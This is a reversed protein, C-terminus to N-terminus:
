APQPLAGVGGLRSILVHGDPLGEPVAGAKAVPHVVARTALARRRLPGVGAVMTLNDYRNKRLLRLQDRHVAAVVALGRRSGAPWAGVSALGSDFYAEAVDALEEVLRAYGRTIVKARLHADKVRHRDMQVGPLYMRGAALDAGVGTVIETLRVAVGIEAARARREADEPWLAHSMALWATSSSAYCYEVLEAPERYRKRDLDADLSDIYRTFLDEPLENALVTYRVAGAIPDDVDDWSGDLFWQRWFDLGGRAESASLNGADSEEVIGRLTRMMASIAYCDRQSERPLWPAWTALGVPHRRAIERCVDYSIDVTGSM